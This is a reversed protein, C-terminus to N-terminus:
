LGMERLMDDAYKEAEGDKKADQALFTTNDPGLSSVAEDDDSLIDGLIDEDLDSNDAAAARKRKANEKELERIFREDADGPEANETNEANADVTVEAGRTDGDAGGIVVAGRTDGDAGGTDGDAGVSVGAGGNGSKMNSAVSYLPEEDGVFLSSATVDGTEEKTVEGIEEGTEVSMKEEAEKQVKEDVEKRIQARKYEKLAPMDAARSLVPIFDKLKYKPYIEHGWQQYIHVLRTLNEFHVSHDYKGSMYNEYSTMQSRQKKAKFRFKGLARQLAPVGRQGLMLDNTLKHYRRRPKEPVVTSNDINANTNEERLGLLEENSLLDAETPM